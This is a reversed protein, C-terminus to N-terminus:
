RVDCGVENADIAYPILALHLSAAAKRITAFARSYDPSPPRDWIDISQGGSSGLVIGNYGAAAGRRMIGLLEQRDAARNLNVRVLIYRRTFTNRLRQTAAPTSAPALLTSVASLLAGISAM